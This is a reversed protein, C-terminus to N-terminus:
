AFLAILLIRMSKIAIPMCLQCLQPSLPLHAYQNGQGTTHPLMRASPQTPARRSAAFPRETKHSVRVRQRRAIRTDTITVVSLPAKRRRKAKHSLISHETSIDAWHHLHRPFTMFLFRSSDCQARAARCIINASNQAFHPVPNKEISDRAAYQPFHMRTSVRRATCSGPPMSSRQRARCSM